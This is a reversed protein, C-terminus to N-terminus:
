LHFGRGQELDPKQQGSRSRQQEKIERLRTKAEKTSLYDRLRSMEMTQPSPLWQEFTRRQQELQNLQSQTGEMEEAASRFRAALKAAEKRKERYRPRIKDVVSASELEQENRRYEQNATAATTLKKQHRVSAIALQQDTPNTPAAQFYLAVV